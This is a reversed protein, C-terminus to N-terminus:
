CPRKKLEVSPRTTYMSAQGPLVKAFSTPRSEQRRALNLLVAVVSRGDQNSWVHSQLDRRDYSVHWLTVGHTINPGIQSLKCVDRADMARLYIDGDRKNRNKTANAEAAWELAVM